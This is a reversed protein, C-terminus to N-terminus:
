EKVPDIRFTQGPTVNLETDIVESGNRFSRVRIRNVGKPVVFNYSTAALASPPATTLAGLAAVVTGVLVRKTVKEKGEGSRGDM